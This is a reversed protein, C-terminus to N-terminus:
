TLHESISTNKQRGDMQFIRNDSQIMERLNKHYFQCAEFNGEIFGKCLFDM